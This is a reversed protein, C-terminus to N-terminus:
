RDWELELSALGPTLLHPLWTEEQGAVLRLGPLRDLLCEAAVRAELRALPAGLCTVPDRLVTIVDEYRTVCWMDYRPMFFVPACHQAARLWPMPDRCEQAGLPDFPAGDV